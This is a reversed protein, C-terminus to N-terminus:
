SCYVIIKKDKPLDKYKDDLMASTINIAGTIHEMKYANPDRSDVFIATGADFEKKADALTIRPADDAPHADAPAINAGTLNANM